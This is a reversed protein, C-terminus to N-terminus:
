GPGTEPTSCPRMISCPLWAFNLTVDTGMPVWKVYTFFFVSLWLLSSCVRQYMSHGSLSAHVRFVDVGTMRMLLARFAMYQVFQIGIM